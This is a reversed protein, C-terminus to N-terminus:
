GTFSDRDGESYVSWGKSYTLILERAVQWTLYINLLCKHWCLMHYELLVEVWTEEWVPHSSFYVPHITVPKILPTHRNLTCVTCCEPVACLSCYRPDNHPCNLNISASLSYNALATGMTCRPQDKGTIISPRILDLRPKGAWDVCNWVSLGTVTEVVWKSGTAVLRGFDTFAVAHCHKVTLWEMSFRKNLSDRILRSIMGGWSISRWRILYDLKLSVTM